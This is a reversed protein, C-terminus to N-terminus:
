PRRGRKRSAATSNPTSAHTMLRRLVRYEVAMVLEGVRTHAQVEAIARKKTVRGATLLTLNYRPLRGLREAVLHARQQRNLQGLTLTPVLPDIHERLAALRIGDSHFTVPADWQKGSILDPVSGALARRKRARPRQRTRTMNRKEM